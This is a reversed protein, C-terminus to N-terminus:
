WNAYLEREAEERREQRAQRRRESGPLRFMRGLASGMRQGTDDTEIPQPPPTYESAIGRGSALWHSLTPYQSTDPLADLTGLQGETHLQRLRAAAQKHSDRLMGDIGPIAEQGDVEVHEDDVPEEAPRKSRKRRGTRIKFALQEYKEPAPTTIEPLGYLNEAVELAEGKAEEVLDEPEHEVGRTEMLRAWAMARRVGAGIHHRKLREFMNQRAPSDPHYAAERGFHHLLARVGLQERVRAGFAAGQRIVEQVHDAAEAALAAEIEALEAEEGASLPEGPRHGEIIDSERAM